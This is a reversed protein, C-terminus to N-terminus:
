LKSGNRLYLGAFEQFSKLLIVFSNTENCSDLLEMIEIRMEEDDNMFIELGRRVVERNNKEPVVDPPPIFNVDVTSETIQIPETTITSGSPGLQTDTSLRTMRIEDSYRPIEKPDGSIM